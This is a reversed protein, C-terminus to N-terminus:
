VVHTRETTPSGYNLSQQWSLLVYRVGSARVPTGSASANKVISVIENVTTPEYVRAVDHGVSLPRDARSFCIFLHISLRVHLFGLDM